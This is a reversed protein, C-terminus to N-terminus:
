ITGLSFDGKMKEKLAARARTLRTRITSEKEGLLRAIEKIPLDEYYFLHIAAREKQSLTKLYASLDRFEATESIFEDNLPVTKRRFASSFQKKACNITVRILWAKRHEESEFIRPKAALRLFVEQFIDDADHRNKAQAFALRYVMDSYTSLVNELDM